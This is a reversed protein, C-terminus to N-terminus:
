GKGFFAVDRTSVRMHPAYTWVRVAVGFDRGLIREITPVVHSASRSMVVASGSRDRQRRFSRRVVLRVLPRVLRSM